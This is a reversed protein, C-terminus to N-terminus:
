EGEDLWSVDFLVVESSSVVPATKLVEETLCAMISSIDPAEWECYMKRTSPEYFSHLWVIEGCARERLNRWMQIWDDQSEPYELIDHVLLYQPM